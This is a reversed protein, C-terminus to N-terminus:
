LHLFWELKEIGTPRIVEADLVPVVVQVITVSTGCPRVVESKMAMWPTRSIVFKGFRTAAVATADIMLGVLKVTICPEATVADDCSPTTKLILPAPVIAFRADVRPIDLRRADM